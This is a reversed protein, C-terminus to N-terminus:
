NQEIGYKEAIDKRLFKSIIKLDKESKIGHLGMPMIGNTIELKERYGIFCSWSFAASLHYPLLKPLNMSFFMDENKFGTRKYKYINFDEQEFFKTLKLCKAIKRISFGGCMAENETHKLAAGYYDFDLSLYYKLRDYLIISDTQYILMFKYDSFKEYFCSSVCLHSYSGISTFFESDFYEVKVYPLIEKAEENVLGDPCVFFTDYKDGVVAKLQELSVKEHKEFTKTYFPIVICLNKNGTDM